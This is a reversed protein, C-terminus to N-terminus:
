GRRANVAPAVAHEVVRLYADFHRRCVTTQETDEAFRRTAYDRVTELMVLRTALDGSARRSLLNKAALAQLVDLRAGTVDHAADIAASGAFVAFRAFAERQPQDLLRYSWEITASLTRHRAPADRRGIASDILSSQRTALDALGIFEAQAAALELALPLGDLRRCTDTILAANACTVTLEGGRQRTAALFLATAPANEVEIVSPEHSNEPLALPAVRARREASLDHPERSTILVKVGHGAGLLEAVLEAAGLVHEFNDVVLLLRRPVLYRKIVDETSEGPVRMIPLARAVTPAVDDSRALGALEVWWVGDAFLAQVAHAIALALRTKGVGGPGVL